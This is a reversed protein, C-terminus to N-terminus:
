TKPKPKLHNQQWHYSKFIFPAFNQKAESHKKKRKQHDRVKNGEQKM